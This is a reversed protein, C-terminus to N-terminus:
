SVHFSYLFHTSYFVVDCILFVIIYHWLYFVCKCTFLFASSIIWGEWLEFFTGPFEKERERERERERAGWREREREKQKM